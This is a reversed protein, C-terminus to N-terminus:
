IPVESDLAQKIALDAEAALELLRRAPKSFYPERSGSREETLADIVHEPIECRDVIPRDAEMAYEFDDGTQLEHVKLCPKDNPFLPRAHAVADDELQGIRTRTGAQERGKGCENPLKHFLVSKGVRHLVYGGDAHRYLAMEVWRPKDPDDDRTSVRVPGTPGVLIEGEFSRTMGRQDRLRITKM